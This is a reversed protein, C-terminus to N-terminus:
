RPNNLRLITALVDGVGVAVVDQRQVADPRRGLGPLDLLAVHQPRHPRAPLLAVDAHVAALVVGGAVVHPHVPVDVEALVEVVALKAVLLERVFMDPLHTRPLSIKKYKKIDFKKDLGMLSNVCSFPGEFTGSAGLVKSVPTVVVRVLFYAKPQLLLGKSGRLICGSM